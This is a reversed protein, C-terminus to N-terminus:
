REMADRRPLSLAYSNKDGNGKATSSSKPDLTSKRRAFLARCGMPPSHFIKMEAMGKMRMSLRMSKTGNRRYYLVCLM